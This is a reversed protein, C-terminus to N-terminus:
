ATHLKRLVDGVRQVAEQAEAQTSTWGFTFRLGENAEDASLGSALLVHSPEVSGSSCAAGSSCAIGARDFAILATEARLGPVRFHAHGPLVDVGDPCTWIIPLAALAKLGAVFLDRAAQKESPQHVRTVAEGFGVVGAVNETGGRVEREQGGGSILPDILVGGRLYLAGVGKPGGIKHASITLLDAGLEDVQIPLQGYTQVADIMLHAGAERCREAIPALEQIAGTENNAHMVAVLLVSDDIKERAPEVRVRAHQDVPLLEVRYGLKELTKQTHLVCHHEAAGILIRRRPGSIQNLALGIIGLNAAETGSSTFTIEGFLAGLSDAVRERAMDLADKARRGEAHTSSPNGYESRLWPTMAAEVEPRVPTTAAHDLYIRATM